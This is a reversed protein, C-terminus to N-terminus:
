NEFYRKCGQVIREIYLHLDFLTLNFEAIDKIYKKDEDVRLLLKCLSRWFTLQKKAYNRTKQSIQNVLDTSEDGKKIYEIIEPYGIIKKEILFEQWSEDLNKVEDIWGENIMQIVRNNIRRYLDGRQRVLFYFLCNGLPDFEPKYDSPRKGTYHWIELARIIRYRDNPGIEKARLPDIEKLMNYLEEISYKEFEVSSFDKGIKYDIDIPPFFLSKIYFLSGGVIIPLINKRWLKSLWKKVNKRYDSVTFYIPKDLIDFLHHPVLQKRLDPKATGITLPKYFQGLDANLVEVTYPIKRILYDVFDTKGVGTPGSIVIFLNRKM